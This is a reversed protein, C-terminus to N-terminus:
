ASRGGSRADIVMHEDVAAPDVIRSGELHSQLMAFALQQGFLMARRVVGAQEIAAADGRLCDVLLSLPALTGGPGADDLVGDFAALSPYAAGGRAAYIELSAGDARVVIEADACGLVMDAGLAQTVHAAVGDDFHVTAGVVRPDSEVHVRSTGHEVDALCAQVGCVRRGAAAFLMLDIAHAHTWFLAGAGLSVRIERLAGYTGSEALRLAQRYIPFFRRIAGYTVFVGPADLASRLRRLELVSNCLPKEVHLARVGRDIADHMLAARGVTRTAICLLTPRIQDLLQRADRYTHAVGHAEAAKALMAPDSDCLAQLRLRPHSRMAEAHSLPFWCSPAHERVAASTFAGM